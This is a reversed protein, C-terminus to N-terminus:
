ELEGKEFRGVFRTPNMVSFYTQRFSKGLRRYCRTKKMKTVTIDCSLFYRANGLMASAIHLADRSCTSCEQQVQKGLSLVDDSSEIHRTCLKIYELVKTRKDENLINHVEFLLIDSSLLRLRQANVAEIITLFADAESQISSRNQDDFPRSYVNTDLYILRPQNNLM